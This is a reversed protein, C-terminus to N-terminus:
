KKGRRYVLMIFILVILILIFPWISRYITNFFDPSTVDRFMSRQKPTMVISFGHGASIQFPQTESKNVAQVYRNSMNDNQYITIRDEFDGTLDTLTFRQVAQAHANPILLFLLITIIFITKM